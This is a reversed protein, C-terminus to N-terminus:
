TKLERKLENIFRWDTGDAIIQQPSLKSLGTEQMRLAYFRMTDEPDFERWRDYRVDRLIEYAYDYNDTFKDQALQKAVLEPNTACLDVAKLLARMIRKTAVPYQRVYDASGALMCCYYQSWPRDLATDLITHGIKRARLDQPEPATALFADIEGAIFLDKPSAKENTAWQFDKGPVLGIYTAMLTLLIHPSSSISYVGVRKGRLETVSHVRENAILELCGSHLGTLVKLPVGGNLSDIHLAAYNWDFDIEGRALWISTDISTDGEVHRVDTFGEAHLLERAIYQPGECGSPYFKSLRVTATEPPPEAAAATRPFGALGAAGALSLTTLFNRRNQVMSM